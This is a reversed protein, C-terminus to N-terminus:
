PIHNMLTGGSLHMVAFSVVLVAATILFGKVWLPTRHTAPHGNDTATKDPKTGPDTM